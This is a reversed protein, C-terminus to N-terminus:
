SKSKIFEIADGLNKIKTIDSQEININFDEEIDMSFEVMDLSDAELEDFTTELTLNDKEVGMTEAVKAFVREQIEQM